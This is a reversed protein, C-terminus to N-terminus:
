NERRKEYLYSQIEYTYCSPTIHPHNINAGAEVLLVVSAYSDRTCLKALPPYYSNDEQNVDAGSIILLRAKMGSFGNIDHLPTWGTKARANVDAGCNILMRISPISLGHIYHLYTYNFMFNHIGNVDSRVLMLRLARDEEFLPRQYDLGKYYRKLRDTAM